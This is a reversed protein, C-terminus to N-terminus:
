AQPACAASRANASDKSAPVSCPVGARLNNALREIGCGFSSPARLLLDQAAATSGMLQEVERFM